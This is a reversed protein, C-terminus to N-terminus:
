RGVGSVIDGTGDCFAVSTQAGMLVDGVQSRLERSVTVDGSELYKEMRDLWRVAGEVGEEALRGCVISDVNVPAVPSGQVTAPVTSVSPACAGVSGGVVLVAVMSVLVGRGM